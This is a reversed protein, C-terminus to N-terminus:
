WQRRGPCRLCAAVAPACRSCVASSCIAWKGLNILSDVVCSGIWQGATAAWREPHVSLCIPGASSGSLWRMVDGTSVVQPEVRTAGKTGPMWDKMKRRQSWTRGADSLYNVDSMSLYAEGVLDFDDLSGAGWIDRNDWPTLPNGHMAVTKIEAVRRLEGLEYGFRELAKAVDGQAKDLVEYHYGVEHGMSAVEAILRPQFVRRTFRFYSTSRVGMHAEILALRLAYLPDRDVDHRLVITRGDRKSGSLFDAVTLLEYNQDRACQLLERYKGLTFDLSM